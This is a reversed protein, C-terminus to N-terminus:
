DRRIDEVSKTRIIEVFDLTRAGPLTMTELQVPGELGMAHRDRVEQEYRRSAERESFPIFAGVLMYRPYRYQAINPQDSVPIGVQYPGGIDVSLEGGERTAARHHPRQKAVGRKCEPCDPSYQIHGQRRHEDLEGQSRLRAKLVSYLNAYYARITRHKEEIERLRKVINLM